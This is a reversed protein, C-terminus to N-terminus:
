KEGEAIYRLADRLSVEKGDLWGWRAQGSPRVDLHVFGDQPYVGIGGRAFAPVQQALEFMRLVGMGNVVVDAAWGHTHTGPKAKRIEKPHQACRYGSNVIVPVNGCVERFAELASLLRASVHMQGCHRCAMEHRSFHASLDGM